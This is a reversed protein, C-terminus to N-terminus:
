IDFADSEANSECESSAAFTAGISSDSDPVAEPEPTLDIAFHKDLLVILDEEALIPTGIRLAKQFKVGPDSGAVLFGTNKTVVSVIKGGLSRICKMAEPRPMIELKGTFAVTKGAFPNGDVDGDEASSAAAADFVTDLDPDDVVSAVSLSSALAHLEMAVRPQNLFGHISAASKEAVNPLTMLDEPSLEALKALGEISKAHLALARSSARGVGPIGLGIIVRELSRTGNANQIASYLATASKEQFGDLGLLSAKSVSFLDSPHIILNNSLLKIGTKEGLGQIDMSDRRCFHLLRGLSQAACSLRNPCLVLTAMREKKSVEVVEGCSPCTSPIDIFMRDATAPRTAVSKIKPIVDGGREVIVTDNIAVDLRKVEDFNHLTARSIVVGGVSVPRLLAVPTISGCRSVQMVVSKVVTKAGISHFKLAVAGRPAKATHGLAQRLESDNVKIVVGDAEYALEERRGEMEVAFSDIEDENRCVRFETMAGFGWEKLGALTEVQTPWYNVVRGAGTKGEEGGGGGEGLRELGARLERESEKRERDRRVLDPPIALCDYAVFRLLRKAAEKPDKNKLGGAAANRANALRGWDGDELAEFDAPTIYVEGRVDVDVGGPLVEPVGRGVLAERVNATVDDGVVGDGRTAACVLAGRRYSVGLAVGDVKAEVCFEGPAKAVFRALDGTRANGLSLMRATHRHPPFRASLVTAMSLPTLIHEGRAAASAAAHGVVQTPSDPTVIEPYVREMEALHMVLEDYEEDRVRQGGGSYYVDDCKRIEDRVREVLRRRGDDMEEKKRGHAIDEARTLWINRLLLLFHAAPGASVEGSWQGGCDQSQSLDRRAKQMARMRKKSFTAPADPHLGYM